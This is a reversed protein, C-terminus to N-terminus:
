FVLVSVVILFFGGGIIQWYNDTKEIEFNQEKKM